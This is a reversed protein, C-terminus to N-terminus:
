VKGSHEKKHCKYCLWIVEYPKDYNKHHGTIRTANNCKSCKEPKIMKNTIIALNLLYRAKQKEKDFKRNKYWDKNRQYSQRNQDKVKERNNERWEEIKIRREIYHTKQYLSNRTKIKDSEKKYRERYFKRECEKCQNKRMKGFDIEDKEELCYNCLLKM